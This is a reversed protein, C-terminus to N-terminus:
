RRGNRVLVQGNSRSGIGNQEHRPAVVQHVVVEHVIFECCLAGHGRVKEFFVSGIQAIAIQAYLRGHDHIRVGAHFNGIVGINNPVLARVGVTRPVFGHLRRQVPLVLNTPELGRGRQAQATLGDLFVGHFHRCLAASHVKVFDGCEDFLKGRHRGRENGVVAERVVVIGVVVVLRQSQKRGQRSVLPLLPTDEGDAAHHAPVEDEVVGLANGGIRLRNRHNRAHEERVHHGIATYALVLDVGLGKPEHVAVGHGHFAATRLQDLRDILNIENHAGFANHRVGGSHGVQEKGDAMGEFLNINRCREAATRSAVEM